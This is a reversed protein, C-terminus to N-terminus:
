KSWSMIYEMYGSDENKQKSQVSFNNKEYFAIAQKNEVYVALSLTDHLNKCYNLLSEGVGQRQYVTDVFLAGIFSNQLISIFGKVINNEEYIYTKAAPLYVNKVTDYNSVWYQEPIFDHAKINTQLWINMIRDIHKTGLEKIMLRKGKSFLTSSGPYRPLTKNM